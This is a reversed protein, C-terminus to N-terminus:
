DTKQDSIDKDKDKDKDKLKDKDRLKIERDTIVNRDFINKDIIGAERIFCIGGIINGQNNKFPYSNLLFLKSNIYTFFQLQINNLTNDWIKDMFTKFRPSISDHVNGQTNLIKKEDIEFIRDTIKAQIYTKDQGVIFINWKEVEDEKPYLNDLNYERVLPIILIDNQKSYDYLDQAIINTPININIQKKPLCNGM